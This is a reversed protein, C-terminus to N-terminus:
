KPGVLANIYVSTTYVFCGVLFPSFGSGVVLGANIANLLALITLLAYRSM